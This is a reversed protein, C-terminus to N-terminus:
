VAPITVNVPTEPTPALAVTVTPPLPSIVQIVLQVEPDDLPPVSYARSSTKVTDPPFPLPLIVTVSNFTTGLVNSILSILM